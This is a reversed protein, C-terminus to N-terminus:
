PLLYATNVAKGLIAIYQKELKITKQELVPKLAKATSIKAEMRLKALKQKQEAPLYQNITLMNVNADPRAQLIAGSLSLM